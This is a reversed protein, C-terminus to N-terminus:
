CNNGKGKRPIAMECFHLLIESLRFKMKKANPPCKEGRAMKTAKKKKQSHVNLRRGTKLSPSSQERGVSILEKCVRATLEKGSM